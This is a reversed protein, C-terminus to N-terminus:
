TVKLWPYVIFYAVLDGCVRFDKCKLEQLGKESCPLVIVELTVHHLQHNLVFHFLVLRVNVECQAQM